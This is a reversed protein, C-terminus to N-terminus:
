RTPKPVGNKFYCSHDGGVSSFMAIPDNGFPDELLTADSYTINGEIKL